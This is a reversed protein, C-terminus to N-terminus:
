PLFLFENSNFLVRALTALDSKAVAAKSSEFEVESPERGLLLRFTETVQRDVDDGWDTRIRDAVAKARDYVFESNFLNLAQIATTSQSREPTPQGADPCDFAGFVPVSEMRIKHAYIMRRLKDPGFEEVPPFGSLGGRTKFFDFGPGGMKLNLEGSVALMSDRIAEAELRRTPFRWLLRSDADIKQAHEQIRSSQQYTRSTLILRHMEKVSWGSEIFRNALWDLLEPHTPRAGNMGFDSPTEVIGRGFHMQWLRNVMVRATLPNEPSAIWNALALRRESEEADASLSVESLVQPVHPNVPELPQEPDGRNLLHTDDPERFQGAYVLKPQRLTEQRQRLQKVTEITDRLKDREEAPANWVALNTESYPTGPPLRDESRAVTTWTKGNVSVDIAYNVPLRDQYKGNRDRGWVIRDITETAPFELQVWGGGKESSIWSKENGYNGDNIHKLQHRGTNSYNGSSTPVTGNDALAVNIPKPGSTFVELEDLCPEYRNNNTTEFTTFRVFRAETPPFSETNRDFQVPTRLKPLQGVPQSTTLEEQMVLVDATIGTGTDGGRLILRSDEEFEHVGADLLGSWRPKQESEGETQGKFYYQDARAIETQDDKTELNGDRDLVYRADRTHVGSGHVGWSIWVRFRGKTSPNWTFVDEGPNNDWWTYRGESLNPMRDLDGPDNKYGRQTGDPNTGHGNKPKLITVRELDEDDIILTEGAFARPQASVLRTELEEIRPSLSEAEALKQRYNEDKIPRDGYEVGAFFAQLAYYDEQDVPDFKHDHCRACGITLGLFSAGTGVIMEDLADQRALRKSADDKGIQGPLLVAAAVLFGTAEDADFRDGALQEKIFQNYPKDDNFAQIVYDRYPWANPRPTNVEFGHTDAYRVLDLWFQAIREGYRPSDLLHDILERRGAPTEVKKSWLELDEPSPPLGHLDLYLRRVLTTNDTPPSLKLGTSELKRTIFRDLPHGDGAPPEITQLPQFSWHQTPDTQPQEDAPSNAGALIWQKVLQQERDSLPEGEPPMREYEERSSVRQWLLSEDLSNSKLAPGSDGGRKMLPVTDLRLSSEQKLAGHCAYCKRAFIPKVDRTYDVTEKALASSPWAALLLTLLVHASIRRILEDTVGHTM